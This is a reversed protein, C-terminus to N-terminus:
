HGVLLIRFLGRVSNICIYIGWQWLQNISWRQVDTVLCNLKGLNLLLPPLKTQIVKTGSQSKAMEENKLQLLLIKSSNWQVKWVPTGLSRGRPPIFWYIHHCSMHRCDFSPSLNYICCVCFVVQRLAQIWVSCQVEGILLCAAIFITHFPM